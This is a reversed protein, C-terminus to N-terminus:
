EQGGEIADGRLPRCLWFTASQKIISASTEMKSERTLGAYVTVM